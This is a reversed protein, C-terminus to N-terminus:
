KEEDSSDSFEIQRELKEKERLPKLRKLNQDSNGSRSKRRKNEELFSVLRKAPECLESLTDDLAEGLVDKKNTKLGPQVDSVKEYKAEYAKVDLNHSRRM